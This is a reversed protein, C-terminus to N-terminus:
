SPRVLAPGARSTVRGYASSRPSPSPRISASRAVGLNRHGSSGSASTTTRRHRRGYARAAHRFRPVGPVAPMQAAQGCNKRNRRRQGSGAACGRVPHHAWALYLHRYGRKFAREGRLRCVTDHFSGPVRNPPFTRGRCALHGADPFPSPRFPVGARTIPSTSDSVPDQAGFRNRESERWGGKLGFGGPMRPRKGPAGSIAADCAVDCSFWGDRLLHNPAFCRSDPERVVANMRWAYKSGAHRASVSPAASDNPGSRETVFSFECAGPPRDPWGKSIIPM